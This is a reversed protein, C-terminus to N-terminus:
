GHSGMWQDMWQDLLSLRTQLSEVTATDVKDGCMRNLEAHIHSYPTDTVAHLRGVKRQLLKRLERKHDAVTKVPPPTNVVATGVVRGLGAARLLRAVQAPTVSPPFGPCAQLVADARRLEEDTFSEGGLITSHHRAESSGLPEVLDLVLPTSGDREKVKDFCRIRQEEERLATDVTRQIDQAYRVLPEISPILLTATIPDDEGRMRVFRGVVQRFFMETRIRSAYVGVSLRPIDVGESVMQVAVIWRTTDAAFRAIRESSDPEDSIALTVPEGTIQELMTAYRRAKFQDAAIVLGAADPVIERHATLEQDARRLVSKIWDGDPNLAAGLANALSDSEADVLDVAVVAGAERWRVEGDLALFQIPRVVTGDLLATGYDYNFDPVCRRDGDYRVFPIATRDSRFPTGSLMLRRHAGEFAEKLARGWPLQDGGHHVEDLIVLTPADTSLKRYLLPASAVSQYTVVVGDFDRAMAGAGNVFRHDLQIGLRAAAAAWQARLHATPVVVLLRSVEGVDILHQAATLAFTTKGAGPTAVALFDGSSNRFKDLADAQWARLEVTRNGKRLNCAPCLAQGNIVDTPGGSSWPKVHDAHWGPELERGCNSCRGDAALYLAVRERQGFRRREGM